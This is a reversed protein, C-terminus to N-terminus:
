VGTEHQIICRALEHPQELAIWHGCHAITKRRANPLAAAYLADASPPVIRDDDGRVILTPVTV